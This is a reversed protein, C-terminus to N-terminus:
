AKYFSSLVEDASLKTANKLIDVSGESYGPMMLFIGSFRCATPYGTDTEWPGAAATSIRKISGACNIYSALELKVMVPSNFNEGETHSAWSHMLKMKDNLDSRSSIDGIGAVLQFDFAYEVPQDGKWLAITSSKIGVNMIKWDNDRTLTVSELGYIPVSGGQGTFKGMPNIKKSLQM